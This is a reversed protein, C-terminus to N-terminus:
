VRNKKVRENTKSKERTSYQLHEITKSLQVDSALRGVASTM